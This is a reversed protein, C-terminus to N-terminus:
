MTGNCLFQIWWPFYKLRSDMMSLTLILCLVREGWLGTELFQWSEETSHTYSTFSTPDTFLLGCSDGRQPLNVCHFSVVYFSRGWAHFLQRFSACVLSALCRDRASFLFRAFHADKSSFSVYLVYIHSQTHRKVNRQSSFSYVQRSLLLFSLLIVFIIVATMLRYNYSNDWFLQRSLMGWEVKQANDPLTSDWERPQWFEECPWISSISGAELAPYFCLHSQNVCSNWTILNLWLPRVLFLFTCQVKAYVLTELASRSDSPTAM